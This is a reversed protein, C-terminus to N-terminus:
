ENEKEIKSYHFSRGLVCGSGLRLKIYIHSDGSAVIMVYAKKGPPNEQVVEELIQNEDELRETIYEWAAQPTIPENTEPNLVEYPRWDRPEDLKRKKKQQALTLLQHRISTLDGSM